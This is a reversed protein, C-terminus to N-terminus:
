KCAGSDGSEGLLVVRCALKPWRLSAALESGADNLLVALPVYVEDVGLAVIVCLVARPKGDDTRASVIALNKLVAAQGLVDLMAQHESTLSMSRGRM